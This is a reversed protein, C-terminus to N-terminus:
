HENSTAKTMMRQRAGTDSNTNFDAKYDTNFDAKSDTNPDTDAGPGSWAYWPM